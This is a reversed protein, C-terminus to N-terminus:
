DEQASVYDIDGGNAQIEQSYDSLVTQLIEDDDLRGGGCISFSVSKGNTLYVDGSYEINGTTEANVSPDRRVDISANENIANISHQKMEYRQAPGSEAGLTNPSIDYKALVADM